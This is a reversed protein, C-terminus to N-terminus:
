SLKLSMKSRTAWNTYCSAIPQVTRPDFVPLPSIKRVHGSRGQPGGLRRYLPYWTKGPSPPTHLLWHTVSVGWGRRTSHDHILAIVRSGRHATRGTCLRLAQVLTFKLCGKGELVNRQLHRTIGPKLWHVDETSSIDLLKGTWNIIIRWVICWACLPKM